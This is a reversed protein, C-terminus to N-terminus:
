PTQPVTCDRADLKQVQDSAGCTEGTIPYKGDDCGAIGLMMLALTIPLLRKM